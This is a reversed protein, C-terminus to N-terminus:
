SGSENRVEADARSSIHNPAQLLSFTFFGDRLRASAM